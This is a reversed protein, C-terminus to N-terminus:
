SRGVLVAPQAAAVLLREVVPRALNVGLLKEMLPLLGPSTFNCDTVLGDILDVAALRFRHRRLLAAVRPVQQREADDLEHPTSTGGEDMDIKYSNGAARKRVSALLKEGPGSLVAAPNVLEASRGEVALRRELDLDVLQLAQLYALDV